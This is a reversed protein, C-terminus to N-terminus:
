HRGHCKKYKRGAGCPCPDNREVGLLRASALKSVVGGPAPLRDVRPLVDIGPAAWRMPQERGPFPRSTDLLYVIDDVEAIIPLPDALQETRGRDLDGRLRDVLAAPLRQGLQERPGVAIYTVGRYEDVTQVIRAQAERPELLIVPPDADTRGPDFMPSTLLVLEDDTLALHGDRAMRCLMAGMTDADVGFNRLVLARLHGVVGLPQTPDVASLDDQAPMLWSDPGHLTAATSTIQWGLHSLPQAHETAAQWLVPEVDDAALTSRDTTRALAALLRLHTEVTEAPLGIGVLSTAVGPRLTHM